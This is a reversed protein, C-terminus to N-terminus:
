RIASKCLDYAGSRPRKSLKSYDNSNDQARDWAGWFQGSTQKAGKQGPMFFNMPPWINALGPRSAFGRRSPPNTEDDTELSARRLARAPGRPDPIRLGDHSLRGGVGDRWFGRDCGV